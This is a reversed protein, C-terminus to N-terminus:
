QGASKEGAWDGDLDDLEDDLEDLEDQLDDLDDDLEDLEDLEDDLEGRQAKAGNSRGADDLEDEDDLSFGDLEDWEEGDADDYAIDVELPRVSIVEL